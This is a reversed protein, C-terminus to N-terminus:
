SGLVGPVRQAVDPRNRSEKVKVFPYIHKRESFAAVARVSTYLMQGLSLVRPTQDNYSYTSISPKFNECVYLSIWNKTGLPANFDLM